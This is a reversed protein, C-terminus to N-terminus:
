PGTRSRQLCIMMYMCGCVLTDVAAQQTAPAQRLVGSFERCITELASRVQTRLRHVQAVAAAPPGGRTPPLTSSLLPTSALSQCPAPPPPSLTFTARSLASPLLQECCLLFSATCPAPSLGQHRLWWRVPASIYIPSRYM